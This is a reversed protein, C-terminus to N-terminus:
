TVVMVFNSAMMMPEPWAALGRAVFSAAAPHFVANISFLNM